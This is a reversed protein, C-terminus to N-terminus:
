ISNIKSIVEELKKFYKFFKSNYADDLSTYDEILQSVPEEKSEGTLYDFISENSVYYQEDVTTHSVYVFITQDDNDTLQFEADYAVIGTGSFGKKYRLGKIEM